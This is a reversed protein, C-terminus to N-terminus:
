DKKLPGDGITASIRNALVKRLQEPQEWGIHNFQRTDFHLLNEKLMDQRCTSVVPIGLGRAFGAEYYVGGRAGSEGQTFDAVLFRSRRIQAIIEDDIKNNHEQRDIRIAEYGADKIGAKIGHEWLSDMSDDFWMAVFAQRSETRVNKLEEIRSYGKVTVIYGGLDNVRLLKRERLYDLLFYVETPRISESHAMAECFNIQDQVSVSEGIIPFRKWRFFELMRDARISIDLGDSSKSEEVKASTVIPCPVGKLRENLLITTLRAVIRDDKKRLREFESKEVDAIDLKFLGGARPSEYVRSSRPHPVDDTLITGWLPCRGYKTEFEDIGYVEGRLYLFSTSEAESEDKGHPDHGKIKAPSDVWGQKWLEPLARVVIDITEGKPALTPHYLKRDGDM